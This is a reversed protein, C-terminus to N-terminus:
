PKEYRGDSPSPAEIGLAQRRTYLTSPHMGLLKAAGNPGYVKGGTRALAAAITERELRKLRDRTLLEDTPAAVAAVPARTGPDLFGFRPPQDKAAIVAREVANELERVNGPWAYAMLTDLAERTLPATPRAHRRAAQALFHTTLLPIDERRNRLPPMEIPYVHLRYYLDARFRGALVQEDLDRNTAAIVRVNVPRPRREGVREVEREQLVRLLKSQAALPVDGIEDLFLTGGSALEFRGPKDQTAGTFAGKASGFFDSEFLSEPVAACNVCVMPGERRRSRAHIARAVLEKGTGSEGTLLVTADTEAVDGVQAIVARFVPSEGIMETAAVRSPREERELYRAVAHRIAVRLEAPQFPKTFFDVAGAKMARVSTRVDVCGTLFVVQTRSASSSLVEQLGLGDLGPLGIDVVLCAPVERDRRDLYATASGFVAVRMDQARVLSALSESMLPDDEVVGVLPKKTVM